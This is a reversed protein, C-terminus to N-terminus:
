ETTTALGSYCPLGENGVLVALAGAIFAVPRVAEGSPTQLGMALILAGDVLAFAGFLLILV